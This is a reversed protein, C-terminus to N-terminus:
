GSGGHCLALCHVGVSVGFQREQVFASRRTVTAKEAISSQGLITLMPAGGRWRLLSRSQGHSIGGGAARKQELDDNDEQKDQQIAKERHRLQRDNRRAPSAELRQGIAAVAARPAEKPEEAPEAPPTWIRQPATVLPQTPHQDAEGMDQQMMTVDLGHRLFAQMFERFLGSDLGLQEASRATDSVSSGSWEGSTKSGSSSWGRARKASARWRQATRVSTISRLRATGSARKHLSMSHIRCFM